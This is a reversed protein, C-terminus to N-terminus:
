EVDFMPLQQDAYPRPNIGISRWKDTNHALRGQDFDADIHNESPTLQCIIAGRAKLEVTLEKVTREAEVRRIREAVAADRWSNYGAPPTTADKLEALETHLETIIQIAEARVSETADDRRALAKFLPRYQDLNYLNIDLAPKMVTNSKESVGITETMAAWVAAAIDNTDCQWQAYRIWKRGISRYPEALQFLGQPLEPNDTTQNNM